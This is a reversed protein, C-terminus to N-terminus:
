EGLSMKVRSNDIRLTPIGPCNHFFSLELFLTEGLLPVHARRTFQSSQSRNQHLIIHMALIASFNDRRTHARHDYTSKWVAKRRRWRKLLVGLFLRACAPTHARERTVESSNIISTSASSLSFLAGNEAIGSSPYAVCLLLVKRLCHTRLCDNLNKRRRKNFVRLLYVPAALINKTAAHFFLWYFNQSQFLLSRAPFNLKGGGYLYPM